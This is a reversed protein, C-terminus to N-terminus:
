AIWGTVDAPWRKLAKLQGQNTVRYVALIDSHNHLVVYMLDKHVVVEPESPQVNNGARFYAAMARRKLDKEETM